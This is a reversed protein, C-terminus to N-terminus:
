GRVFRNLKDNIQVPKRDSKPPIDAKIADRVSREAAPTARPGPNDQLENTEIKGGDRYGSPRKSKRAMKRQHNNM